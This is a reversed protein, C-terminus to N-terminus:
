HHHGWHGQHWVRGWARNRWGWGWYGPVWVRPGYYGYYRPGYYPYPYGYPYAYYAPPPATVVPPGVVPPPPLPVEFRFSVWASSIGTTLFFVLLLTSLFLIKKM